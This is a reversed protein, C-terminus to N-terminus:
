IIQLDFKKVRMQIRVLGSGASKRIKEPDLVSGTFALGGCGPDKEGDPERGERETFPGYAPFRAKKWVLLM